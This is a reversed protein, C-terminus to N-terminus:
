LTQLFENESVKSLSIVVLSNNNETIEKQVSLRLMKYESIKLQVETKCQPWPRIGSVKIPSLVRCFVEIHGHHNSIIIESCFIHNNEHLVPGM